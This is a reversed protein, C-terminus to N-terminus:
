VSLQDYTQQDEYRILPAGNREGGWMPGLLGAFKPQGRLEPRLHDGGVKGTACYGRVEFAAIPDPAEFIDVQHGGTENMTVIQFQTM